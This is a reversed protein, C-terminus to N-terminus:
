CVRFQQYDCRCIRRQGQNPSTSQIVVLFVITLFRFLLGRMFTKCEEKALEAAVYFGAGCRVLEEYIVVKTGDRHCLWVLGAVADRHSYLHLHCCLLVTLATTVALMMSPALLSLVAVMALTYSPYM